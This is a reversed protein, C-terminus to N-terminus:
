RKKKASVQQSGHCSASGVTLIPLANQAHLAPKMLQAVLLTDANGCSAFQEAHNEVAVPSLM